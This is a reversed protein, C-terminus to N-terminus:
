PGLYRALVLRATSSGPVLSTGVAVTKGDGQATLADLLEEGSFTTVVKGGSGFATDLSGNANFRALAFHSAGSSTRAFGGAVIKGNTGITLAQAINQLANPGEGEFDIIPSNFTADNIGNLSLRSMHVDIDHRDGFDAATGALVIQANTQFASTSTHTLAVFSGAATPLVTGSSSLRVVSTGSLVLISNDSEVALGNITGNLSTIVSGNKGFFPDLSGNVNYRLVIAQLPAEDSPPIALVGALLKGDPQLLAVYAGAFFGSIPTTVKGGNGFTADLTGTSTYRAVAVEDVSGNASDAEGAAVIKGAPTIALARATNLFNSFATRVIGGNGFSGDLTGNPLYRVTAFVETAINFDDLTAAVVIKGDTQLAVSGVSNVTIPTVVKGGNGFSPDLSGPTTSFRAISTSGATQVPPEIRSQGSPGACAAVGLITACLFLFSSKNM